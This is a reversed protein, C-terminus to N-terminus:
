SGLLNTSDATGPADALSSLVELASRFAETSRDGNGCSSASLILLAVGCRLIKSGGDPGMGCHAILADNWSASASTEVAASHAPPRPNLERSKCEIKLQTKKQIYM